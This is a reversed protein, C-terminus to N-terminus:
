SIALAYTERALTLQKELAGLEAKLSILTQGSNKDDLQSVRLGLAKKQNEFRKIQTELEEIWHKRTSLSNVNFDVKSHMQNHKQQIHCLTVLVDIKQKIQKALYFTSNLSLQLALREIDGKLEQIFDQAHELKASKFLAKPLSYKCYVINSNALKWELEPLRASLQMLLQEQEPHM